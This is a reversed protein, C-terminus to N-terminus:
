NIQDHTMIVAPNDKSKEDSVDTGDPNVVWVEIEKGNRTRVRHDTVAGWDPKDDVPRSPGKALIITLAISLLFYLLLIVSIVLTIQSFFGM